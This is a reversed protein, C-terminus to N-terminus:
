GFQPFGNQQFRGPFQFGGQPPSPMGFPGQQPAPMGFPGQQSPGFPGQQPAPMGFPGQPFPGSPPPPFSFPPLTGNPPPAPFLPFTGNSPPQPFQPYTGNPPLQPFQPFTGNGPTPNQPAQRKVLASTAVAVCLATLFIVSNMTESPGLLTPTKLLTDATIIYDHSVSSVESTM